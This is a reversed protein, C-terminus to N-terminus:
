FRVLIDTIDNLCSKTDDATCLQSICFFIYVRLVSKYVNAIYFGASIRM